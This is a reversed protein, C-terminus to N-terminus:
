MHNLLREADKLARLLDPAAAILRANALATPSSPLGIGNTRVVCGVAGPVGADKPASIGVPVRGDGGFQIVWPGSSHASVDRREAEGVAWEVRAADAMTGELGLSPCLM